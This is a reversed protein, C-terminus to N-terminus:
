RMLIRLTMIIDDQLRQLERQHRLFPIRWGPLMPDWANVEERIPPLRPDRRPAHRIHLGFNRVIGGRGGRRGRNGNGGRRGQHNRRRHGDPHPAVRGEREARPATPPARNDAPARFRLAPRNIVAFPEQAHEGNFAQIPEDEAPWPEDPRMLHDLIELVRGVVSRADEEDDNGDDDDDADADADELDDEPFFPVFSAMSTPATVQASVVVFGGSSDTVPSEDDTDVNGAQQEENASIIRPETLDIEQQTEHVASAAEDSFLQVYNEQTTALALQFCRHLLGMVLVIDVTGELESTVPLDREVLPAATSSAPDPSGTLAEYLQEVLENLELHLESTVSNPDRPFDRLFRRLPCYGLEWQSGLQPMRLAPPPVSALLEPESSQRIWRWLLSVIKFAYDTDYPIPAKRSAYEERLRQRHQWLRIEASERIRQVTRERIRRLFEPDGGQQSQIGGALSEPLVIDNPRSM